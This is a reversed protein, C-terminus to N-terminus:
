LSLICLGEWANSSTLYWICILKHCCPHRQLGSKACLVNRLAHLSLLTFM